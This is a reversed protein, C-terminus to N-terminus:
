TVETCSGPSQSVVYKDGTEMTRNIYASVEDTNGTGADSPSLPMGPRKKFCQVVFVVLFVAIAAGIIQGAIVDSWHNRYEAVRNIGTLVALSVMSLSLLPGALRGGSSGICCMVYMALYVAPYLSLAAEKSPFTKRARLIDDPDGTCADSQVVFLPTDQCGLATYNPQCVSLFYPALSGTVLQGANVFIDTAFLGFVYVGLFRFTRRVMPNVYCCDGMLVVKEQDYLNNSNYHLLFIVLEVGSILVVPLGGVVSYLIVPQILSDQEPGPDPKTLAADRCIFGQQAPSFTDTFECYYVMMLTASLIVVQFYLM